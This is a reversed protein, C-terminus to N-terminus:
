SGLTRLLADAAVYDITVHGETMAAVVPALVERAEAHRDQSALLAAFARAARLEHWRAGQAGAMRLAERYLREAEEARARNVGLV